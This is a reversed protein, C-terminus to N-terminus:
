QQLDTATTDDSSTSLLSRKLDLPIPTMWHKAPNSGCWYALSIGWGTHTNDSWSVLQKHFMAVLNRFSVALHCVCFSTFFVLDSAKLKKEIIEEGWKKAIATLCCRLKWILPNYYLQTGQHTCSHTQVQTQACLLPTTGDQEKGLVCCNASKCSLPFDAIALFLEKERVLQSHSDPQGDCRWECWQKAQFRSPPYATLHWGKQFMLTSETDQWRTWGLSFMGKGAVEKLIHQSAHRKTICFNCVM